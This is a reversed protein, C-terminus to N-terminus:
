QKSKMRDLAKRVARGAAYARDNDKAIQQTKQIVGRAAKMAKERAEPNAAAKQALYYVIQRLITM